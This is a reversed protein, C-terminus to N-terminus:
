RGGITIRFSLECIPLDQSYPNSVFVNSELSLANRDGHKISVDTVDAEPKQMDMLKETIFDKALDIFQDM